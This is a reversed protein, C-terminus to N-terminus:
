NNLSSLLGRKRKRTSSGSMQQAVDTRNRKTSDQAMLTDKDASAQQIAATQGQKEQLSRMVNTQQQQAVQSDALSKQTTGLVSDYALKQKDLAQQMLSSKSAYDQEAQTRLGDYKSGLDANQQQLLSITNDYQKRQAAIEEKTPGVYEVKQQGGGGGM